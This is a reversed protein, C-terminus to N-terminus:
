TYFIAQARYLKPDAGAVNWRIKYYRSAPVLNQVTYAGYTIGDSSTAAEITVTGVGLSSARLVRLANVGRDVTQVYSIPSSAAGAWSTEEGWTGLDDWIETGLNDLYSGNIYCGVKEAPWGEQHALTIFDVAGFADGDFVETVYVPASALGSTDLARVAFTYVGDGFPESSEFARADRDKAQLPVMDSFAPQLIGPGYAWEFSFLDAPIPNQYDWFYQRVGGPQEVVKARLVPPPPEQKGRVVELKSTEASYKGVGNKFRVRFVYQQGDTLNPFYVETADGALNIVDSWQAGPLVSRYQPVVSGQGLVSADTAQNWRL